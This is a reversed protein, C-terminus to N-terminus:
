IAAPHKRRRSGAQATGTELRSRGGQERFEASADEAGCKRTIKMSCFHPGCMSCFHATAGRAPSRRAHLDRATTPDLSLNFQDRGTSSSGRRPPADDRAKGGPNGQGSRRRRPIKLRHSAKVDDRDAPRSTGETDRLLADRPTCGIMAARHGLSTPRLRSRHRQRAAGATHLRRRCVEM